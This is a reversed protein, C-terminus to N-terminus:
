GGLGGWKFVMFLITVVVILSEVAGFMGLKDITAKGTAEDGNRFSESIKRCGPGFVMGGLAGGVIVVLFGVSVFPASFKITFEGNVKAAFIMGIGTLLLLIFAVNKLTKGMLGQVDAWWSNVEASAGVARGSGLGMALNAGLWLAVAVIHLALLLQYLTSNM